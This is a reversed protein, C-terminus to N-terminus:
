IITELLNKLTELQAPERKYPTMIAHTISNSTKPLNYKVFTASTGSPGLDLYLCPGIEEMKHVFECFNTPQSVVKWFYDTSIKKMEQHYLGSIFGDSPIALSPSTHMYYM